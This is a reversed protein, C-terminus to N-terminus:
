SDGKESDVFGGANVGANQMKQKISLAKMCSLVFDRQAKNILAPFSDSIIAQNHSYMQVMCDAAGELIGFYLDNLLERNGGDFQKAAEFFGDTMAKAILLRNQQSQNKDM